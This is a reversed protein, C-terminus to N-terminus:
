KKLIDHIGINRLIYEDGEITFTIRYNMTVSIEWRDCGQMKHFRMSPHKPNELLMRLQKDVRKQVDPPIGAYLAIFSPTFRLKM